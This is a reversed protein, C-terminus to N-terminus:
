QKDIKILLICSQSTYLFMVSSNNYCCKSHVIIIVFRKSTVDRVKSLVEMVLKM